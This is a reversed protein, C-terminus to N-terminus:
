ILGQFIQTILFIFIRLVYKLVARKQILSINNKFFLTGLSDVGVKFDFNSFSKQNELLQKDFGICAVSYVEYIKIEYHMQFFMFSQAINRYFIKRFIEIPKVEKETLIMAKTKKKFNINVGVSVLFLTCVFYCYFM